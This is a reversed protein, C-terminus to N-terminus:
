DLMWNGVTAAASDLQGEQLRRPLKSLRSHPTHLKCTTVKVEPSPLVWLGPTGTCGVPSPHAGGGGQSWCTQCGRAPRGRRQGEQPRKAERAAHARRCVPVSVSSPRSRLPITRAAPFLYKDLQRSEVRGESKCPAASMAYQSLLLPRTGSSPDNKGTRSEAHFDQAVKGPRDTGQPCEPQVTSLAAGLPQASVESGPQICSSTPHLRDQWDRGVEKAEPGSRLMAPPAKGESLGCCPRSSSATAERSHWTRGSEGPAVRITSRRWCSAPRGSDPRPGNLRSRCVPPEGLSCLAQLRGGAGRCAWLFPGALQGPPCGVHPRHRLLGGSAGGGLLQCQPVAQRQAQPGWEPKQGHFEGGGCIASGGKELRSLRCCFCDTSSAEQSSPKRRGARLWESGFLLSGREAWQGWVQDGCVLRRHVYGGGWSGPTSRGQLPPPAGARLVPEGTRCWLAGEGASLRHQVLLHPRPPGLSAQLPMPASGTTAASGGEGSPPGQHAERTCHPQQPARAATVAVGGGGGRRPREQVELKWASCLKEEPRGRGQPGARPAM